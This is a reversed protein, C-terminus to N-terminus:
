SSLLRELTRYAELESGARVLLKGTGITFAIEVNEEKCRVLIDRISTANRCNKLLLGAVEGEMGPRVRAIFSFKPSCGKEIFAILRGLSGGSNEPMIRHM